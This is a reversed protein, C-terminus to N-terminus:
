KRSQLLFSQVDSERSYTHLLLPHPEMFLSYLELKFCKSSVSFITQRSTRPRAARIPQHGVYFARRQSYDFCYVRDFNSYNARVIIIQRILLAHSVTSPLFFTLGYDIDRVRCEPDSDTRGFLPEPLPLPRDAHVLDTKPGAGLLVYGWVLVRASTLAACSSDGAVAKTVREGAALARTVGTLPRPTHVQPPGRRRKHAARVRCQGMRLARRRLLCRAGHRRSLQAARCARRRSRRARSHAGRGGPLPRSGDTLRRRARLQVGRRERRACAYQGRRVVQLVSQPDVPLRM